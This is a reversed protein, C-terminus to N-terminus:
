ILYFTVTLKHSGLLLTKLNISIMPQLKIQKSQNYHVAELAACCCDEVTEFAKLPGLCFWWM